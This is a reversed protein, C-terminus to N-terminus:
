TPTPGTTLWTSAISALVRQHSSNPSRRCGENTRSGRGADSNRRALDHRSSQPRRGWLTV